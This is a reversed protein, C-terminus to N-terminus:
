SFGTILFLCSFRRGVLSHGCIHGPRLGARQPAQGGAPSGVNGGPTCLQVRQRGPGGLRLGLGGATWKGPQAARHPRSLRSQWGCGRTGLDTSTMTSALAPPAALKAKETIEPRLCDWWTLPNRKRQSELNQRATSQLPFFHPQSATRAPFVLDGASWRELPLSGESPAM